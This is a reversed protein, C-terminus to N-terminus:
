KFLQACVYVDTYVFTCTVANKFTNLDYTRTVIGITDDIGRLACIVGCRETLSITAYVQVYCDFLGFIFHLM